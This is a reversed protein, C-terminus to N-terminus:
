ASANGIHTGYAPNRWLSGGIGFWDIDNTIYKFLIAM